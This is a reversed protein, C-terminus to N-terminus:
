FQVYRLVSQNWTTTRYPCGGDALKGQAFGFPRAFSSQRNPRFRCASFESSEEIALYGPKARRVASPPQGWMIKAIKRGEVGGRAIRAKLADRM